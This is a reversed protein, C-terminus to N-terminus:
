NECKKQRTHEDDKNRERLNYAIKKTKWNQQLNDKRKIEANTENAM